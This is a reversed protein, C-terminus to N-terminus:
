SSISAPRAGQRNLRTWIVAYLGILAFCGLPMVFGLRMSYHDAIWGMLIPMIAGGVISMILYSSAKKTLEGLGHIGLAFITPFMLSMCFFSFFLAGISVWGCPLIVLIMSVIGGLCFSALMVQAPLKRMLVGGIFRGTLLLGFGGFALM